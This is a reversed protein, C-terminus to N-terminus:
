QLIRGSLYKGMLENSIILAENRTHAPASIMYGNEFNSASNSKDTENVFITVKNFAKNIFIGGYAYTKPIADQYYAYIIGGQLNKGFNIELERQDNPVSILEGELDLQGKFTLSGDFSKKLNGNIKIKIPKELKQNGEGLQYKIGVMEFSIHRPYLYSVIYILIALLVILSYIIPKKM